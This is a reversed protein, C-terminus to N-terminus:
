RRRRREQEKLAQVKREQRKVALMMSTPSGKALLDARMRELESEAQKLEQPRRRVRRPTGGGAGSGGKNAAPILFAPVIREDIPVLEGTEPKKYKWAGNDDQVIDAGVIKMGGAMDICNASALADYLLRQKEVERRNHELQEAAARIAEREEAIQQLERNLLVRQLEAKEEERTRAKVDSM